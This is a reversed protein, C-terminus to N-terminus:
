VELVLIPVGERRHTNNGPRDLNTALVDEDDSVAAPSGDSSSRPM